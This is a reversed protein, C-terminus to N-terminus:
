QDPIAHLSRPVSEDFRSQPMIDAGFAQFVESILSDIASKEIRQCMV